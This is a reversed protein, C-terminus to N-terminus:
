SILTTGKTRGIEMKATRAGFQIARKKETAVSHMGLRHALLRLVKKGPEIDPVQPDPVPDSGFGCKERIPLEVAWKVLPEDLYPFRAERGWHSIVRDDRGLNRKGLRNVDLELEDLLGPFGNRNFATAHRTYGGFLEDAGLGSLLVRAPTIYPAEINADSATSGIGRAAFYLAFAISLDMETNHPHILDVVKARHEITETYPVNVAVFRWTRTPCVNQLEHHAKRGTERDPCTEYPSINSKSAMSDPTDTQQPTQLPEKGKKSRPGTQAAKIVRPNEFAVNLLDIEQGLPLIDHALRALVTCDLGGSFLIALRVKQTEETGPPSLINLIRPKLSENLHHWLAMVSSSQLSLTHGDDQTSKNFKGLVFLSADEEPGNWSHHRLPFPSNSFSSDPQNQSGFASDEVSSSFTYIGDAEIEKWEGQSSDAVSAFEVCNSEENISYLLSRRGLRDRGTYLVGHVSDWFVFAFPGSINQLIKIVALSADAASAATSMERVLMEYIIQGDNGVIFESGVRWAEGNWCLISGTNSASISGDGANLSSDGFPQRYIHDGRLALVTSLFSLYCSPKGDRSARSAQASGTHDPGRNCLLPKLAHSPNQFGRLSISAYIGCM